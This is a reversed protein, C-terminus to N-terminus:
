GSRRRGCRPTNCRAARRGARRHHPQPAVEGGDHLIHGRKQRIAVAPAPRYETAYGGMRGVPYSIWSGASRWTTTRTATPSRRRARGDGPRAPLLSVADTYQERWASNVMAEIFTRRGLNEMYWAPRPLSGIVSTPLTVGNASAKFM